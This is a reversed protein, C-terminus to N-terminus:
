NKAKKDADKFGRDVAKKLSEMAKEKEGSLAQAGAL